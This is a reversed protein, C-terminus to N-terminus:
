FVHGNARRGAGACNAEQDRHACIIEFTQHRDDRVPPNRLQLLGFQM